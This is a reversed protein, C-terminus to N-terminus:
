LAEKPNRRRLSIGATAILKLSKVGYSFSHPVILTRCSPEVMGDWVNDFSPAGEWIEGGLYLGLKM